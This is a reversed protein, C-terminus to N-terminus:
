FVRRLVFFVLRLFTTLVVSVLIMSTIPIFLRVADREIRLDGPLYGFWGVGGTLIVLGVVFLVNLLNSGLVNGISMDPDHKFASVLSAALEPLGDLPPGAWWVGLWGGGWDWSRFRPPSPFPLVSQRFGLTLSPTTPTPM